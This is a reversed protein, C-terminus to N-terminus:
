LQSCMTCTNNYISDILFAFRGLPNEYKGTTGGVFGPSDVNSSLGARRVRQPQLYDIPLEGGIEINSRQHKFGGRRRKIGTV